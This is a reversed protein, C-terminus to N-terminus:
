RSNSAQMSLSSPATLACPPQRARAVTPEHRAEPPSRSSAASSRGTPSTREHAGARALGILQEMLVTAEDVRGARALADALWFSCGAEESWCEEDVFARISEAQRRWRTTHARPILDREALRVAGDLAVWCMIKSHTFHLPEGRVEWIGCDPRHWIECILDAIEAPRRGTDSDLDGGAAAYLWATQMLAGYIDLQEQDVAANGIRM